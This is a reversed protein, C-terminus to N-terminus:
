PTVAAIFTLVSVLVLAACSGAMGLVLGFAGGLGNILKCLTEDGVAGSLFAVGKYLLYQVGLRLFPGVCLGLVALMGFVGITNKVVGAGALVSESVESIIGGVVPVVGSIAAKTVKVAAADTAGTLVRSVSLYITFLLLTTTLIWTIGKKMGDAMASLRREGLCVGAALTGIYLYCFPMLLSDILSVLLSVLFVTTVQQMSATAASGSVATAAALTPLLVKSFTSLEGVTSNGLGILESLDGATLLTVALGGAMPVYAATKGGFSEVAGCLVVVLLISAAGRTQARLLKKGEKAGWAGIRALGEAWGSAGAEEVVFQEAEEPLAKWLADPIDACRAPVTLLWLTLVTIIWKKM